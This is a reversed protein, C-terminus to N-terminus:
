NFSEILQEYVTLVDKDEPRVDWGRDYNAYTKGHKSISLKSIRGQNIGYESGLEFYKICFEYGNIEGSKWM